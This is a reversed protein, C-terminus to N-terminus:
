KEIQSTRSKKSMHIMACLFMIGVHLFRCQLQIDLKISSDEKTFDPLVSITGNYSKKLTTFCNLIELLYAVSQSIIGYMIATKSADETAVVINIKSVKIKSYKLFSNFTKELIDSASKIFELIGSASPKKHTEPRKKSVSAKKKKEKRFLRSLFEQRSMKKKQQRQPFIRYKLFLYSFAIQKEEDYKIRLKIPVLM